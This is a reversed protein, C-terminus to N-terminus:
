VDEEEEEDEYCRNQKIMEEVTLVEQQEVEEQDDVEDSDWFGVDQFSRSAEVEGECSSVATPETPTEQQRLPPMVEELVGDESPTLSKMEGEQEEEGSSSHVDVCSDETPTRSDHQLEMSSVEPSLQGDEVPAAPSQKRAELAHTNAAPGSLTFPMSLEKLSSSRRLLSLERAQEPPSIPPEEEPPWMARIPKSTFCEETITTAGSRSDEAETRPPWSIKLRRTEAPRDARESSGQGLAEMTAMLVNVKALPSDEVTPSELDSAPVPSQIKLKTPTNSQPMTEADEGKSEWLEKHPRLGFGEDYNGKAKFLQCFHPKCYVSNQLSAYNALSLKTNCYSCRFCSSHYVHQNAVLRELPYVTKLCAVCTERAPLCFSKPTKPQSPDKQSSSSPSGAASGNSEASFGKRGSPESEPSTDLTFPPVNEKQKGCFGDLQDGTVSNPPVDQKSIAAQYLAMRDRLPTSEALSGDLLQDMHATNGSNGRSTQERSVKDTLNEGKEFMMKLSNLPISPKESDLVEAAAGEQGESDRSRKAEMDIQDQPQVSQLQSSTSESFETHGRTEPETNQGQPFKTSKLTDSPTESESATRQKPGTSQSIHGQPDAASRPAAQLQARHSSSPLQQQQQQQQQEWRKRLASLNGSCVISPLPETVTKKEANGEEAAMQYKSFREAIANNKGRASVIALEKATVRLSQSAWQKRNFSAISAM